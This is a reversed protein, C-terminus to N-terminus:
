MPSETQGLLGLAQARAVADARANVGLKRYLARTHTRVTNPSLFLERAIERASLEADTPPDLIEGTRARGRALAIDREVEAALSPVRGSDRFESLADRASALTAEAEDLRGRRCRVGALVVLLWAHHVTAVEDRLFRDANNLEREGDALRGEAVLVAGLAASANAGLWSRSSGVAGVLARAKEGHM